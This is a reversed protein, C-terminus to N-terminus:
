PVTGSSQQVIDETSQQRHRLFSLTMDFVNSLSGEM